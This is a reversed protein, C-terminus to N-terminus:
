SVLCPVFEAPHIFAGNGVDHIIQSCFVLNFGIDHYSHVILIQSPIIVLDPILLFQDHIKNLVFIIYTIRCFAACKCSKGHAAKSCAVHVHVMRFVEGIETYPAIGINVAHSVLYFIFERGQFLLRVQEKGGAFPVVEESWDAFVAANKSIHPYFVSVKLNGARM